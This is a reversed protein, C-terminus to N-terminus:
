GLENLERFCNSLLGVAVASAARDEFPLRPGQTEGTGLGQQVKAKGAFAQREPIGIALCDVPSNGM